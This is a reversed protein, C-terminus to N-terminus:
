FPLSKVGMVACEQGWVAVASLAGAIADERRSFLSHHVFPTHASDMFNDHFFRFALPVDRMM